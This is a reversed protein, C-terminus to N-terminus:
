FMNKRKRSTAKNAKNNNRWRHLYVETDHKQDFMRQEIFCLFSRFKEFTDSKRHSQDIIEENRMQLSREMWGSIEKAEVLKCLKFGLVYWYECKSRLNVVSPDVLLSDAFRSQFYIPREVRIMNRIHLPKIMWFPLGIMTGKKLDEGCEGTEDLYGLEVVDVQFTCPLIQGEALIDDIDDYNGEM